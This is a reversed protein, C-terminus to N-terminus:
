GVCRALPQIMEENPISASAEPRWGLVQRALVKPMHRGTMLQFQHLVQTLLVERGEIAVRGLSRTGTVLPTPKSGYVLDVVVADESLRDIAFPLQNDDRGVPTAHVVISFGDVKLESLPVFPLGLLSVALQGRESGRNVLTVEAGAQDLAAAVPRGAGGCGVVAARKRKVPIGRERLILLVGEPDTTEATWTGNMWFLINSSGARRVMPCKPGAVALAAEKHPSVVTLGRLPMGLSLLTEGDVVEHWFDAFSQVQFPVYLAPYGLARFAANYLRPSLSHSVPNGVIGYLENLPMLAPLRYDEILQSITPEGQTRRDEALLGFVMPAGLYPAVLRSWFGMQGIAYALTDSRGLSRLLRLPALEDGVRAAKLILKYLRAEVTSLREFRASLEEADLLHGHWSILRKYPSIAALLEPLLDREGELDILDYQRAARLLRDRRQRSSGEFQGGEARSRLSYLLQGPFHHRLRDPDIDGLLDARVELWQVSQSLVTLEEGGQSPPTTLTAVLTAKAMIEETKGAVGLACIAWAQCPSPRRSAPTVIGKQLKYSSQSPFNTFKKLERKGALGWAFLRRNSGDVDYQYIAGRVLFDFLLM